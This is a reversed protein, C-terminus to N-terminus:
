PPVARLASLQLTPQHESARLVRDLDRLAADLAAATEHGALIHGLLLGAIVDGPGNAIGNRKPSARETCRGARLLLTSISDETEHATTVVLNSLRLREAARKIAEFGECASGALWELEFRNPTAITALPLLRDRIAAATAEAVYLRGADGLIPDVLVPIGPRVARIRVIADAVTAVADASPFYGTMVADLSAWCGDAELGTLMMALDPVPMDHRVMRGLGPRSALVVTPLAWVEHGLWQLAPVTAALGVTGRVVHSSIALVRAM